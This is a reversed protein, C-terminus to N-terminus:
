YSIIPIITFFVLFLSILTVNKPVPVEMPTGTMVQSQGTHIELSGCSLLSRVDM